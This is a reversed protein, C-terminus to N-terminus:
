ALLADPGFGKPDNGRDGGRWGKSYLLNRQPSQASQPQVATNPSLFVPLRVRRREFQEEHLLTAGPLTLVAVAAARAQDLQAEYERKDLTFLLQDKKVMTGETFHLQELFAPLRARIEVTDMADSQAVFESYIAVTKQIVEAVVVSPPPPQVEKAAKGEGKCGAVGALLLALGVALVGTTM